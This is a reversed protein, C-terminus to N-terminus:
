PYQNTLPRLKAVMTELDNLDKDLIRDREKQILMGHHVCAAILEHLPSRGQGKDSYAIHPLSTMIPFCDCGPSQDAFGTFEKKLAEADLAEMGKYDEYDEVFKDYGKPKLGGVDWHKRIYKELPNVIKEFNNIDKNERTLEKM